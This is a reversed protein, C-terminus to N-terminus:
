LGVNVEVITITDNGFIDVAKVALRRPGPTCPHFVSMLSLSRDKKTRFSQWENEFVCDEMPLEEWGGGTERRPGANEQHRGFNFDVAWYDIWDTWNRPERTVVGHRDRTVKVIQGKEVVIQSSRDKLSAGPAASSSGSDFVSFGALEVAVSTGKVHPQISLHSVDRFVAHNKHVAKKDFVESPIVRLAIDVGRCRSRDLLDPRLGAEFEFGLIDVSTIQKESCELIVEEVFSRTVACQIPGIAVLRGAKRGHCNNFGVVKVARYARLILDRYAAHEHDVQAASRGDGANLTIGTYHQREHKGFSLVEFSRCEKGEAKLQQQVGILRKRTTHIALKGLDSAIWKRGLKEAAAATTGSGCFFDAVLDGEKSSARLIRSVLAEPKQTDYGTLEDEPLHMADPIDMWSDGAPVREVVQSGDTELFYKIRVGGTRTHYVRNESELRSLSKDTYDGRPATKFWSGDPDQKFGAKRAEDLSYRRLIFDGNFQHRDSKRYYFIDDHNRAFQNAIAKAGRATEGYVWVIQNLFHAPSMIEDLILRIGASLRWDCHVYICGDESLLDRMLILREYLMALLSDSGKGWTDRYAIAELVNRKGSGTDGGIEMDMSFDGGVDFPPDIYILKIGAQQEIEERLPGNKLSSLILKNDGWILKNSWGHNPASLSEFELKSTQPQPGTVAGPKSVREITKFPLVVSCVGGTKGNWVLEMDAKEEFLLFRFRDPVPQDAELCRLVAQKEQETLRPM